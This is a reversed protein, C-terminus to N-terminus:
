KRQAESKKSTADAAFREARDLLESAKQILDDWSMAELREDNGRVAYITPFKGRLADEIALDLFAIEGMPRMYESMYDDTEKHLRWLQQKVQTMRWHLKAAAGQQLSQQAAEQLDALSTLTINTNQSVRLAGSQFGVESLLFGKDAGVDQVIAMLALVKEKPVNTKWDKCEIVWKFRVGHVTGVVWVDIEHKGRAGEIVAEITAEFGM